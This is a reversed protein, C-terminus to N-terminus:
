LSGPSALPGILYKSDAGKRPQFKQVHGGFVDATYLNGESDTHFYHTGWFYGPANGFTGFSYLLQGDLNYKLIKNAYGDVIWAYQDKSIAIHNPFPIDPWQDLFKGNADFVQIRRNTRDAVYVRGKADAAISHLANFEGPDKGPKGWEMLYKGDKSFKVVRTNDYGDSVYFDGNPLFALNTPTRFHTKDDGPVHAEGVTMVLRKGDNSFKFVQNSGSDVIWVHKEPDYPNIMIFHPHSFLHNWQNWSDILKGDRDYVTVIHEWRAGPIPEGSYFEVIGDIIKGDPGTKCYWPFLHQKRNKWSTEAARSSGCHTEDDIRRIQPGWGPGGQRAGEKPVGQMERWSVPVLGSMLVFVRDPSEAFVSSTRGWTLDKSFFPQPWNPVVDYPGSVDAGGKKPAVGREQASPILGLSVVCAASVMWNRSRM